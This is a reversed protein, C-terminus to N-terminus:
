GGNGGEVSSLQRNRRALWCFLPPGASFMLAIVGFFFIMLYGVGLRWGLWEWRIPFYVLLGGLGITLGAWRLIRCQQATVLLPDAKHSKRWFGYGWVGGTLLILFLVILEGGGWPAGLQVAQTEVLGGVAGLALLAAAFGGAVSTGLRARDSVARGEAVALPVLLFGALALLPGGYVLWFLWWVGRIFFCAFFFDFGSRIESVMRAFDTYDALHSLIQVVLVDLLIGLAYGLLVVGVWRKM